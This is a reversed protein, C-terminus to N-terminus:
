FLTLLGLFLGPSQASIPSSSDLSRIWQRTQPSQELTEMERILHARAPSSFTPLKDGLGEWSVTQELIKGRLSGSAKVYSGPSFTWKPYVSPRATIQDGDSNLAPQAPYLINLFDPFNM